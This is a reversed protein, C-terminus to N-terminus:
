KLLYEGFDKENFSEKKPFFTYRHRAIFRYCSNLFFRPLFSLSGLLAYRGGLLWLIRLAAKGEICCTEVDKGYNELLVVSDCTPHATFLSVLERKATEGKLPAFLFIHKHDANRVFLLLRQCLPCAADFFIIHQAKM